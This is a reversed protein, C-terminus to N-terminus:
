FLNWDARTRAELVGPPQTGAFAEFHVPSPRRRFEYPVVKPKDVLPVGNVVVDGQPSLQVFSVPFFLHWREFAYDEPDAPIDGCPSLYM